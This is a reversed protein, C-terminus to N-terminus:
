VKLIGLDRRLWQMKELKYVSMWIRLLSEINAESMDKQSIGEPDESVEVVELLLHRDWRTKCLDSVM